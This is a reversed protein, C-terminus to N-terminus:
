HCVTCIWILQSRWFGVSRSRCQKCLCPIDPNLLVLTLGVVLFPSIRIKCMCMNILLSFKMNLQISCSFKKIVKPSVTKWCNKGSWCTDFHASEINLVLIVNLYKPYIPYANAWQLNFLSVVNHKPLTLNWMSKSIRLAFIALSFLLWLLGQVSAANQPM